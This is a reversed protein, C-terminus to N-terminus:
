GKIKYLFKFLRPFRFMLEEARGLGGIEMGKAYAEKLYEKASESADYVKICKRFDSKAFSRIYGNFDTIGLNNFYLFHDYDACVCDHYRKITETRMISEGHIVYGYYKEPTFSIKAARSYLVPALTWDEFVRGQPFRIGSFLSSRIIKNCLSVWEGKCTKFYEQLLEQASYNKQERIYCSNEVYESYDDHLRNFACASIDAENDLAQIVLTKYFEPFIIDDGDVFGIFEGSAADLGANRATSVGGNKKHIVKIRSDKKAWGDCIEPCRDPSGDDVLIIELAKYTQKVISEVCKDLYKEVHYVPVIVSIVPQHMFIM